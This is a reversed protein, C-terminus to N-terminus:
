VRDEGVRKERFAEVGKERHEVGSVAECLETGMYGAGPAVALDSVGMLPLCAGTLRPRGRGPV